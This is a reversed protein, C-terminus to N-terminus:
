GLPTDLRLVDKGEVHKKEVRFQYGSETEDDVLRARCLVGKSVWEMKVSNEFVSFMVDSAQGRKTKPTVFSVTLKDGRDHLTRLGTKWVFACLALVRKKESTHTTAKCNLTLSRSQRGSSNENKSDYKIRLTVDLVGLQAIDSRWQPWTEFLKQVVALDCRYLCWTNFSLDVSHIYELARLVPLLDVGNDPLRQYYGKHSICVRLKADQTLFTPNSIPPEKSIIPSANRFAYFTQIYRALECMAVGAWRVPHVFPLLESRLQANVQTLTWATGHKGKTFADPTKLLYIGDNARERLRLVERYIQNRLEGPLQLFPFHDTSTSM